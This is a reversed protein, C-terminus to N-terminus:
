VEVKVIKGMEKLKGIQWRVFSDCSIHQTPPDGGIAVWALHWLTKRLLLLYILWHSPDQFKSIEADSLGYEKM